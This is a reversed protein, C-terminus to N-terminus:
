RPSAAPAGGWPPPAPAPRSPVAAPCGPRSGAPLWRLRREPGGGRPASHAEGPFPTEVLLVDVLGGPFQGLGVQLRRVDAAPGVSSHPSVRPGWSASSVRAM